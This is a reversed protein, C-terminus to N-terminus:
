TSYTIKKLFGSLIETDSVFQVLGAAIKFPMIMHLVHCEFSLFKEFNMSIFKLELSM